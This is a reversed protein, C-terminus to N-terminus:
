LLRRGTYHQYLEVIFRQLDISPREDPRHISTIDPDTMVFDFGRYVDVASFESPRGKSHPLNSVKLLDELSM